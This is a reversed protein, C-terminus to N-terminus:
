FRLALCFSKAWVDNADIEALRIRLTVPCTRGSVGTARAVSPQQHAGHGSIEGRSGAHIATRAHELRVPQERGMANLFRRLMKKRPLVPKNEAPRRPLTALCVQACVYATRSFSHFGTQQSALRLAAVSDSDAPLNTLTISKIEQRKLEELVSIVFGPKQAPEALFDCYDGTTACLFTVRGADDGALAAIGRLSEQEDYALFLLTHLTAYYARQVALAWEYTYFVQPRDLSKVLANWQQRLEADEPIQKLLILRV